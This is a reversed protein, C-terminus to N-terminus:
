YYYINNNSLYKTLENKANTTNENFNEETIGEKVCNDYRMKRIIGKHEETTEASINKREYEFINFFNQSYVFLFLLLLFLMFKISKKLKLKKKKKKKAM